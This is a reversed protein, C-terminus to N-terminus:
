KISLELLQSITVFKYGKDILEPIIIKLAEVTNSTEFYVYDHLLVIDGNEINSITNSVIKEVEPNSWDRSDQTYSWLIVNCSEDSIIKIINDDYSGYPPRFTKSKIGTLSFIIDQTKDFEEKVKQKPVQQINIHSYTHNGIEHGEKAQRKIIDPYQEAFQGLVFFTAKINYKDLLDLIEPTYQPHPGDDFTLAIFKQHKSGNRVINTQQKESTNINGSIVYKISFTSVILFTILFIIKTISSKKM